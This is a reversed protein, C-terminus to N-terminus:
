GQHELRTTQVTYFIKASLGIVLKSQPLEGIQSILIRNQLFPNEQKVSCLLSFLSNQPHSVPLM